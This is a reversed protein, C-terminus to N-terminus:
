EEVCGVGMPDRNRPIRSCFRQLQYFAQSQRKHSGPSDLWMRLRPLM